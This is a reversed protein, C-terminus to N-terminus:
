SGCKGDLKQGVTQFGGDIYTKPNAQQSGATLDASIDGLARKLAPDTVRGAEEDVQAAMDTFTRRVDDGPVGDSGATQQAIRLAGETLIKYVASCSFEPVGASASPTPAISFPAPVSGAPLEVSCGAALAATAVLVLTVTTRRRHPM